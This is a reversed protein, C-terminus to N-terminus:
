ENEPTTATTMLKTYTPANATIPEAVDRLWPFSLRYLQFVARLVIGYFKCEVVHYHWTNASKVCNSVMATIRSECIRRKNRNKNWTRKVKKEGYFGFAEGCLALLRCFFYYRVSGFHQINLKFSKRDICVSINTPEFCLRMKHILAFGCLLWNGQNLSSEGFERPRGNQSKRATKERIWQKENTKRKETDIAQLIRNASIQPKVVNDAWHVASSSTRKNFSSNALYKAAKTCM